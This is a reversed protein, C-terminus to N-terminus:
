NQSSKQLLATLAKALPQQKHAQAELACSIALEPNGSHWALIAKRLLAQAQNEARIALSFDCGCRPCIPSAGLRSRCATCREM